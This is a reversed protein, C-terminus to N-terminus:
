GFEGHEKTPHSQSNQFPGSLEPERPDTAYGLFDRKVVCATVRYIPTWVGSNKELM